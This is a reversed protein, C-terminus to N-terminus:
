LIDLAFPEISTNGCLYDSASTLNGEQRRHIPLSRRVMYLLRLAKTEFEVVQDIGGTQAISLVAAVKVPRDDSVKLPHRLLGRIHHRYGDGENSLDDLFLKGRELNTDAFIGVHVGQLFGLEPLIEAGVFHDNGVISRATVELHEAQHSFVEATLYLDEGIESAQSATGESIIMGVQGGVTRLRMLLGAAGIYIGAQDVAFVDPHIVGHLHDFGPPDPRFIEM